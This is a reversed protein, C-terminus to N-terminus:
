WEVIARNVFLQGNGEGGVIIRFIVFPPKIILLSISNQGRIFAVCRSVTSRLIICFSCRVLFRNTQCSEKGLTVCKTQIILKIVTNAQVFATIRTGTSRDLDEQAISGDQVIGKLIIVFKYTIPIIIVISDLKCNFFTSINIIIDNEILAIIIIIIVVIMVCRVWRFCGSCGRSKNDGQACVFRIVVHVQPLVHGLIKCVANFYNHHGFNVITRPDFVFRRNGILLIKAKGFIGATLELQDAAGAFFGSHVLGCTGM